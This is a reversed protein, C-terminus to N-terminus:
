VAVAVKVTWSKVMVADEGAETTILVEAVELTVTVASLPNVPVTLRVSM